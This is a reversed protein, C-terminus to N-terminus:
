RPRHARFFRALEAMEEEAQEAGEEPPPDPPGLQLLDTIEAQTAELLGWQEKM